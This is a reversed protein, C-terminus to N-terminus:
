NNKPAKPPKPPEPTKSSGLTESIQEGLDEMKLKFSKTVKNQDMEMKVKGQRLEINYGKGEWFATRETEETANGLTETIVNKVKSTHEKEFSASYAYSSDTQSTSISTNSSSNKVKVNSKSTQAYGMGLTMCLILVTIKAKM